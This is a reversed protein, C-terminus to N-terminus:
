KEFLIMKVTQREGGLVPLPLVTGDINRWGEAELLGWLRDESSHRPKMSLLVSAVNLPEGLPDGERKSESSAHIATLTQTLAPLMDVNYTCDSLVVLDWCRGGVLPGFTGTKGDEWDLNEYDLEVNAYGADKVQANFRAINARAREEAESLDTMLVYTPGSDPVSKLIHAIGTGLIGVGCGLELISLPHRRQFISTLHGMRRLDRDRLCLSSLLAVTSVGADWIHRAISEGIEEEVQVMDEFSAVQSALRISRFAVHQPEEGPGPLDAYVPMILGLVSGCIDDASFAVLTKDAPRIQITSIPQAPLPLELKLVRSGSQWFTNRGATLNVPVLSQLGSTKATHIGFICIPVPATPSLFSDGLDTTITFAVKLLQQRGKQEIAPPRLLRIYHM